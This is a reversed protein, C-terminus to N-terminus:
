RRSSAATSAEVVHMDHEIVLITYGHEQRLRDILETIELTENPNMGAAPEDLLLLRPQTAM